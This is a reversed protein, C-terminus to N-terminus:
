INRRQVFGGFRCRPYLPVISIFFCGCSCAGREWCFFLCGTRQIMRDRSSIPNMKQATLTIRARICGVDTNAFFAAVGIGSDVTMAGAKGMAVVVGSGSAGVASGALAEGAVGSGATGTEAAGVMGSASMDLRSFTMSMPMSALSFPPVVLPEMGWVSTIITM